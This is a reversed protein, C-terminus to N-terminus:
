SMDGLQVYIITQLNPAMDDLPLHTIDLIIDRCPFMKQMVPVKHPYVMKKGEHGGSRTNLLCDICTGTVESAMVSMYNFETCFAQRSM